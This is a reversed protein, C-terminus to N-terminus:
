FFLNKNNLYDFMDYSPYGRDFLIISDTILRENNLIKIHEKAMKRKSTKFKTISANVVINNLVYYLDSASAVAAQIKNQNEGCKVADPVQLSTGDM